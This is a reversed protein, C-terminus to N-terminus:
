LTSPSTLCPRQAIPLPQLVGLQANVLRNPLVALLVTNSLGHYRGKTVIAVLVPQYRSSGHSNIGPHGSSPSDHIM